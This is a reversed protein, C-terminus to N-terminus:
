DADRWTTGAVSKGACYCNYIYSEYNSGVMGYKAEDVSTYCDRMISGSSLNKVMGAGNPIRGTTYCNSIQSNSASGCLIGFYDLNCVPVEINANVIGLNSVCANTVSAFLGCYQLTKGMFSDKYTDIIGLNSIVYGNGDLRGRFDSIPSWYKGALDIDNTLIFHKNAYQPTDRRSDLAIKALQESTGIEYPSSETGVGVFEQAESAHYIWNDEVQVLVSRDPLSNKSFVITTTGASKASIWSNSYNAVTEDMSVFEFSKDTAEKPSMHVGLFHRVDKSHFVVSLPNESNSSSTKLEFGDANVDEIPSLSDDSLMRFDIRGSGYLPDWGPEGLDVTMSKILDKIQAATYNPYKLLLMAVAASVHPAAMSTGSMNGYEGGPVSSYIDVGPACVDVAEGYNSFSGIIDYQDVASVTIVNSFQTSLKAPCSHETNGGDNGSSVVFVPPECGKREAEYIAYDIMQRYLCNGDYCTGGLSLNIVDANTDIAYKIGSAVIASNLYDADAGIKVPLIKVNEPTCDVITGAVHTGHGNTDYPNNNGDCCNWGATKDTLSIAETTRGQLHPHGERGNESDSLYRSDVGSDVVAM